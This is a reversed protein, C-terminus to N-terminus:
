EKLVKYRGNAIRTAEELEVKTLSKDKIFAQFIKTLEVKIECQYVNTRFDRFKDKIMGAEKLDDKIEEETPADEKKEEPEEEVEIVADDDMAPNEM